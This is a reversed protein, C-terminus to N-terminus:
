WFAYSHTSLNSPQRDNKQSIPQHIPIEINILINKVGITTPAANSNSFCSLYNAIVIKRTDTLTEDYAYIVFCQSFSSITILLSNWVGLYTWEVGGHYTHLIGPTYTIQLPANREYHGVVNSVVAGLYICPSLVM